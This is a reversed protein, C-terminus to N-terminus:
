EERRPGPNLHAGDVPAGLRFTKAVVDPDASENLFVESSWSKSHIDVGLGDWRALVARVPASTPGHLRGDRDVLWLVEELAYRPGTQTRQWFVGGAVGLVTGAWLSVALIKATRNM